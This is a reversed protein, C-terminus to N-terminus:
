LFPRARGGLPLSRAQLLRKKKKKQQSSEGMGRGIFVEQERCSRAAWRWKSCPHPRIRAHVGQYFWDRGGFESPQIQNKLLLTHQFKFNLFSPWIHIYFVFLQLDHPSSLFELPRDQFDSEVPLLDQFLSCLFHFPLRRWIFFCPM